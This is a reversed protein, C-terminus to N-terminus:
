RVKKLRFRIPLKKLPRNCKLSPTPNEVNRRISDITKPSLDLPDGPRRRRNLTKAVRADSVQMKVDGAQVFFGGRDQISSVSVDRAPVGLSSFGRVLGNAGNIKIDTTTSMNEQRGELIGCDAHSVQLVSVDVIM